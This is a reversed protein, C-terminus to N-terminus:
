LIDDVHLRSRLVRISVDCADTCRKQARTRVSAQGAVCSNTYPLPLLSAAHPTEEEERREAAEQAPQEQERGRGAPTHPAAGGVLMLRVRLADMDTEREVVRRLQALRAPRLEPHFYVSNATDSLFMGEALWIQYNVVQVLHDRPLLHRSPPQTLVRTGLACQARLDDTAPGCSPLPLFRM